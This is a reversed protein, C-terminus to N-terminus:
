KKAGKIAGIAECTIAHAKNQIETLRQVEKQLEDVQAQLDAARSAEKIARAEWIDDDSKPKESKQESLMKEVEHPFLYRTRGTPVQRFELTHEGHFNDVRIFEIMGFGSHQYVSGKQLENM